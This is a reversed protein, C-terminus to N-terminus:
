PNVPELITGSRDFVEIHCTGTSEGTFAVTTVITGLGDAWTADTRTPTDQAGHCLQGEVSLSELGYDSAIDDAMTDTRAQIAAELHHNWILSGVMVVLISLAGVAGIWSAKKAKEPNPETTGIMSIILVIMFIIALGSGLQTITLDM